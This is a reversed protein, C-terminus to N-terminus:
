AIFKFLNLVKKVPLQNYKLTFFIHDYPENDDVLLRDTANIQITFLVTVYYLISASYHVGLLPFAGPLPRFGAELGKQKAFTGLLPCNGTISM